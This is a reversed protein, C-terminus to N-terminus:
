CPRSRAGGTRSPNRYRAPAGVLVGAHTMGTRAPRRLQCADRGSQRAVVSVAARVGGRGGLRVSRRVREFVDLFWNMLNGAPRRLAPVDHGVLLLGIPFFEIGIVPLFWFFSLIILLIGLPIRVPRADPGHLWHLMRRCRAPALRELREYAQNLPDDARTRKSQM